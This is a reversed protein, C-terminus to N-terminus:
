KEEEKGDNYLAVKGPDVCLEGPKPSISFIANSFDKFQRDLEFYIEDRLSETSYNIVHSYNTKTVVVVQWVTKKRGYWHERKEVSNRFLSMICDAEITFGKVGITM